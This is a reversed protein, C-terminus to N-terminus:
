AAFAHCKRPEFTLSATAGRPIDQDGSSVVKLSHGEFEVLFETQTGLFVSSVVKAPFRNETVDQANEVIEIDEPRIAVVIAAGTVPPSEERWKAVITRGEGVSVRVYGNDFSAITGHLQAGFGLFDAAFLTAPENFVERPTGEQEIEGKNVLIIRDSLALAESQDHTVFIATFHLEDQLLRLETRVHERLGADLNSLPEDFLVVAPRHVLARALAVRQQQGGSLASASRHRMESLGLLDLVEGIRKDTEAKPFKAIRMPFGVNGDVSMHPWIAYSQFVMGIKRHEPAVFLRRSQDYVTQGGIEISGGNPTELGALCRLTTTKGCGSPGLLSVTEGPEVAFSVSKVAKFAGYNKILGKVSVRGSGASVDPNVSTTGAEPGITSQDTM